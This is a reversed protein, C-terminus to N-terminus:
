RPLVVLQGEMSPEHTKCVMRYIGAKDARFSLVTLQGRKVTFDPAYNEIFSPHEDGHVGWIRLQVEDGQYVVISGPEWRYSSTEWRGGQPEKLVYGPGEVRAAPFPEQAVETSGKFEVASMYVTRKAPPPPEGRTGCAAAWGALLWIAIAAVSKAMM